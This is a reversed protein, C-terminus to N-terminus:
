KIVTVNVSASSANGAADKAVIQIAHTGAAVHRINWNYGLTNGKGTAKLAGNIYLTQTIGAAASDDTANGSIAVNKGSVSGAVPNIIKVLPAKTDAEVSSTGNAVNVSVAASAQSNGARDFAYATLSAMGNPVGASDWTFAFPASTDLAVTTSNVRLEVREVGVNDAVTVDVGVLGTVTTGAIPALISISPAETDATSTAAVASLVASAANVRGYGYYPDRGASGLDVATSFLLSEIQTNPLTSKAAMMLAVVGAIVPSSLSTGSYAGYGGGRSTSWIGAGPAAIAVYNGYSSWSAKVDNSATASVPIMATTPTFNENIGSNGASVMVLGGKDKMYQSAAVVATRSPMNAFSISAVRVGRDAAYVLGNAIMSSYGGGNLDTVRIPMIKSQGAVSAVGFSNNSAAAAAGAVKTGHGYVDSTNSNNDYFNWGPVMNSILDPHANDVGSDLSAITVGSGQSSDWASSAGIKPLHWASGYYPDNPILEPSERYDLEAFKFHPNHALKAAIAKESANAPLDVVYLSSQGMKRAKGGHAQLIRTFEHEPLGPRPMVIIRGKAWAETGSPGPRGKNEPAAASSDISVWGMFSALMVVALSRRVRVTHRLHPLNLRAIGSTSVERRGTALLKRNINM